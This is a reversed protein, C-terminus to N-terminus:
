EKMREIYIISSSPIRVQKSHSKSCELPIFQATMKLYGIYEIENTYFILKGNGQGIPGYVHIIYKADCGKPTYDAIFEYYTTGFGAKAESIYGMFLLLTVIWLGILITRQKTTM